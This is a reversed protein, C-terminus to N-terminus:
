RSGKLIWWVIREDSVFDHVADQIVHFWSKVGTHQMMNVKTDVKDFEFMVWMGGLYMLKVDSFGEDMLLTRLNPISNIDKVRGMAHKSLDREIVCSDDLMLAPTSSHSTVPVFPPSNGKVATAYSGATAHVKTQRYGASNYTRSPREYRPFNPNQPREFRVQNAYLHRRGIWITCLNEVLRALNTVKIFRAFAFRKGSKSKKFPIFIDVVMGYASCTKWLDRSNISDPFNTVFVSQSIKQTLEENSKYFSM